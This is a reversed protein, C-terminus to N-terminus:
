SGGVSMGGINKSRPTPGLGQGGNSMRGSKHGEIGEARQGWIHHPGSKSGEDRKAGDATEAMIGHYFSRM